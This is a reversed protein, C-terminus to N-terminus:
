CPYRTRLIWILCAWLLLVFTLWSHYMISWVQVVPFCLGKTDTPGCHDTISTRVMMAILACVYSQQMIVRGLLSFPSERAPNCSAGTLFLSM